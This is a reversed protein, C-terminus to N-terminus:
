GLKEVRAHLSQARRISKHGVLLVRARGLFSPCALMLL